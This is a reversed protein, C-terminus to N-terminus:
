PALHCKPAIERFRDCYAQAQAASGFGDQLLVWFGGQDDALADSTLSDVLRVPMGANTFRTQEAEAAGRGGDGGGHPFVDVLVFPRRISTTTSTPAAATQQAARGPMTLRGGVLVIAATVLVLLVTGLVAAARTSLRPRNTGSGSVTLLPAADDPRGADRLSVVVTYPRPAGWLARRPRARVTATVVGGAPLRAAAPEAVVSGGPPDILAGIRFTVDGDSLSRVRLGFHDAVDPAPELAGTMPDPETVNILGTAWGVREGGSVEEARLTYPILATGTPLRAPPRFALAVDVSGGAPVALEPPEAHVWEAVRGSAVGVRVAVPTASTNRVAVPVRVEAGPVLRVPEPPLVLEVDV